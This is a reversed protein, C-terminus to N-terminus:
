PHNTATPQVTGAGANAGIAISGPGAHANSGYAGSQININGNSDPLIVVNGDGFNGKPVGGYFTNASGAKTANTPILQESPKSREEQRSFFSVALATICTLLFIWPLLKKKMTLCAALLAGFAIVDSTEIRM